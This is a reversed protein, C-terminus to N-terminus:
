SKVAPGAECDFAAGPKDEAPVLPKELQGGRGGSNDKEGPTSCCFAIVGLKQV